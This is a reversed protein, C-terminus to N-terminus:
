RTSSLSYRCLRGSYAHDVTDRAFSNMRHSVEYLVNLPMKPLKSPQGINRHEEPQEGKRELTTTTSVRPKHGRTTVSRSGGSGSGEDVNSASVDEQVIQRSKTNSQASDSEDDKGSNISSPDELLIQLSEMSWQDSDYDYSYDEDSDSSSVDEPSSQRSETNWQASPM